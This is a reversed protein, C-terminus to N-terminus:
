VTELREHVSDKFFIWISVAGSDAVPSAAGVVSLLLAAPNLPLCRWPVSLPHQLGRGDPKSRNRCHLRIFSGNGKFSLYYWCYESLLVMLFNVSCILVTCPKDVLIRNLHRRYFIAVWKELFMVSLILFALNIFHVKENFLLIYCGVVVLHKKIFFSIYIM